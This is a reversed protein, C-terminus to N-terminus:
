RGLLSQIVSWQTLKQAYSLTAHAPSTSPLRQYHLHRVSLSPRVQRHFIHEATVGNFIITHIHPHKKLFSNFDNPMMSHKDIDADLSGRRNCSQLVDWLALRNELLKETREIYPLAIPLDLLTLLISWFQNRPHAYYQSAQISANSPMSGLILIVADERAIPQFGTIM